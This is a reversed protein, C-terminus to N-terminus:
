FKGCPVNTKDSKYIDTKNREKTRDIRDFTKRRLTRINHEYQSIVYTYVLITLKVCFTFFQVSNHPESDVPTKEAKCQMLRLTGYIFVYFTALITNNNNDNNPIRSLWRIPM